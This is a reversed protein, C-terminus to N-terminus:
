WGVANRVAAEADRLSLDRTDVSLEDQRCPRSRQADATRLVRDIAADTAGLVDDGALMPGDGRRRDLAHARLDAASPALRVFSVESAPLAARVASPEFEFPAVIVLRRTGVDRFTRYVRALNALGVSMSINWAFSLQALDVFGARRGANWEHSVIEWGIRSAGALRPGTIWLIRDASSAAPEALPFASVHSKHSTVPQVRALVKEVTEAESLDDTDIREWAPNVRGAEATGASLIQTLQDDRIRRAGLRERRTETSADLWLSQVSIGGIQPPPDDPWAVGSVILRDAGVQRFEEAICALAREKLAWRDKDDDPAPYCMGLQDTDVYGTAVENGAFRRAVAWATTSKGVGPAGALRLLDM